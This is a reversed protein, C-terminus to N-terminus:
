KIILAIEKMDYKKTLGGSEVVLHGFHDVDRIIGIFEQGRCKYVAPQSFNLLKSLYAQHIDAINGIRLVHYGAKIQNILENLVAERDFNSGALQAMSVPNPLKPNFNMQNVNLGIGVICSSFQDGMIINKSLIGAIKRNSAYVDNPWKIKIETTPLFKGLCKGVALSVVKNILFQDAPNLFDPQLIISMLINQAPESQWINLGVGRGKEQFDTFIVTFEEIKQTFLLKEAMENTSDVVNFFLFKNDDPSLKM